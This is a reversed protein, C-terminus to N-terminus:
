KHLQPWNTTAQEIRKLVGDEWKKQVATNYNLYLKGEIIKWALPDVPATYNNSVAWACYGGYQPAYQEPNKAFADRNAASSFQWTAGKWSHTFEPVGKVPAKAQFYAVTDYGKLALGAGDKNVPEVREAAYGSAASSWWIAWALTAARLTSSSVSNM